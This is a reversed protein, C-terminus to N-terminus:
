PHWRPSGTPEAPEPSLRPAAPLYRELRYHSTLYSAAVLRELYRRADHEFRSGLRPLDDLYRQYRAEKGVRSAKIVAIVRSRPVDSDILLVFDLRIELDQLLSRIRYSKRDEDSLHEELYKYYHHAAMILEDPQWSADIYRECWRLKDEAMGENMRALLWGLWLTLAAGYANRREPIGERIRGLCLGGPAAVGIGLSMIVAPVYRGLVALIVAGCASLLSTLVIVLVAWWRSRPGFPRGKGNCRKLLFFTASACAVVFAPAVAVAEGSM